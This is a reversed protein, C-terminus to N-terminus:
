NNAGQPTWGPEEGALITLQVGNFHHHHLFDGINRGVPEQLDSFSFLFHFHQVDFRKFEVYRLFFFGASIMYM